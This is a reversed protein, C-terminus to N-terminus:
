LERGDKLINIGIPYKQREKWRHKGALIRYITLGFKKKMDPYSIYTIESLEKKDLLEEGIRIFTRLPKITFKKNIKDIGQSFFDTENIYIKNGLSYLWKKAFSHAYNM